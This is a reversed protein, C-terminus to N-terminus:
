RWRFHCVFHLVEELVIGYIPMLHSNQCWRIMSLYRDVVNWLVQRSAARVRRQWKQLAIWWLVIPEVKALKQVVWPPRILKPLDILKHLLHVFIAFPFSRCFPLQSPLCTRLSASHSYHCRSRGIRTSAESSFCVLVRSSTGWPLAWGVM